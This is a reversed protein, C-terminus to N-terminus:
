VKFIKKAVVVGGAGVTIIFTGVTAMAKKATDINKQRCKACYKQKGSKPKGCKKCNTM